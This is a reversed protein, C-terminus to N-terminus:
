FDCGAIWLVFLEFGAMRFYTLADIWFSRKVAHPV